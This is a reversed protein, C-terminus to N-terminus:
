YLEEFTLANLDCVSYIENTVPETQTTPYTFVKLPADLNCALSELSILLLPSPHFSHVKSQWITVEDGQFETSLDLKVRIDQLSHQQHKSDLLVAEFVFHGEADSQTSDSAVGNFVITREINIGEAPKGNLHLYGSIYPSLIREM